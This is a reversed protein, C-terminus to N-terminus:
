CTKYNYISTYKYSFYKKENQDWLAKTNSGHESVMQLTELVMITKKFAM